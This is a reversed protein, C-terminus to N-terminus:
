DIGSATLLEDVLESLKDKTLLGAWSRIIEGEPTIFYTSPMGVVRYDQMITSDSTTGAPYSVGLESILAKGDQPTGLGTFTGVDLGFLLVQDQYEDFVEQFDPMELRCPPCLGAWFNLVVPKGQAVLDSFRVSEGGLVERGQYVEIQFDAELKSGVASPISGSSSSSPQNSSSCAALALSGFIIFSLYASLRRSAM